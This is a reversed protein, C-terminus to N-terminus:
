RWGVASGLRIAREGKVREITHFTRDDVGLLLSDAPISALQDKFIRLNLWAGRLEERSPTFGERIRALTEHLDLDLELKISRHKRHSMRLTDPAYELYRAAEGFDHRALTFDTLAHLVFTRAAGAGDEVLRVALRDSFLDSFLGESNSVARVTVALDDPTPGDSLQRLFEGLQRYPLMEIWAPDDRELFSKRRLSAHVFRLHGRTAPELLHDASQPIADRLHQLLPVDRGPGSDAAPRIAEAGELWLQADQAPDTTRSVDLTGLLALLRDRRADEAAPPITEVSSAEFLSNYLYGSLLTAPEQEEALRVIEACDRSGAVVFALASRLDRMTIHLRRRLRAVDLTQRVREAARPGLVPDRLQEANAHAYCVDRAVCGECPQWLREDAFRALLQAVISAGEAAPLTLARLNLNVLRLWDPPEGAEELLLAMLTRELWPFKQQNAKLFDRLRGENIAIVRTEDAAPEPAEGSFPAFFEFLVDENATEGEDQSGDWNTALRLGRHDITAGNGDPRRTVAAGDASLRSEVMQIFATKGDGANGTIIVLRHLGRELDDFLEQDIRTPVYAWRSFDDLGRTGANTTGSQSFLTSLRYQYPNWNPRALEEDRALPFRGEGIRTSATRLEERALGLADRLAAADAFWEAHDSSTARQLLTKLVPPLESQALWEGVETGLRGGALLEALVVAVAYADLQAPTADAAIAGPPRYAATGGADPDQTAASVNFDILRPRHDGRDVIVNQPKLDRHTIGNQHLHAVADAIDICLEVCRIRPLQGFLTDLRDGYVWRTRTFMSPYEFVRGDRRFSRVPNVDDPKVILPHDPLFSLLRFEEVPDILDAYEDRVFKAAYERGTVSDYVRYVRATGGEGGAGRRVVWRNEIEDEARFGDFDEIKHLKGELEGLLLEATQPREGPDPALARELTERWKEPAARLATAVDESQGDGFLELAIKGLSYVDSGFSAAGPDARVEPPLYDADLEPGIFETVGHTAPLRAYDFDTLVIRQDDLLHACRPSLNRHVVGERHVSAAARVLEVYAQEADAGSLEDRELLWAMSPGAPWETVVVLYQEIEDVGNVIPAAGEAGALRELATLDQRALLRQRREQEGTALADLRYRKLRLDRALEGGHRLRARWVEWGAGEDVEELLQWQGVVDPPRVPREARMLIDAARAAADAPLKKPHDRPDATVADILHEFIVTSSACRGSLEPELDTVLVVLPVVLIRKLVNEAAALVSPVIQAKRQTIGVPNPLYLPPGGSSSPIEWQQDNGVVKGDYGKTEVLYAWGDPSFVIADCEYSRHRQQLWFNGVVEWGEPLDDRLRSLVEREADNVPEGALQLRAM